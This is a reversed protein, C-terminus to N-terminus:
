ATILNGHGDQYPFRRAVGITEPRQFMAESDYELDGPEPQEGTNQINSPYHFTFRSRQPVDPANADLMVNMDDNFFFRKKALGRSYNIIINFEDADYFRKSNCIRSGGDSFRLHKKDRIHARHMQPTAFVKRRTTVSPASFAEDNV